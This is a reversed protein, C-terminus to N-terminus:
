KDGEATAYYRVSCRDNPHATVDQHGSSFEKDIPIIGDASNGECISCAGLMSHWQKFKWGIEEAVAKRGAGFANVSETRAITMARQPDDIIKTIRDAADQADEFNSFSLKLASKVRDQTTNDLTKALKLGYKDVFDLLTPANKNWGIDIKSDKQMLMGGAVIADLLADTLIVKMKLTEGDWDIKIWDDIESAKKANVRAEYEMWNIQSAARTSLEKFYQTFGNELKRDTKILRRFLDPDKTYDPHFPEGPFERAYLLSSEYALQILKQKNRMNTSSEM